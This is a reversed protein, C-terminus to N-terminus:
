NNQRTKKYARWIMNLKQVTENMMEFAEYVRYSDFMVREDCNM